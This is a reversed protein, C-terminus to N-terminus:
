AANDETAFCGQSEAKKITDDFWKMLTPVTKEDYDKIIGDIKEKKNHNKRNRSFLALGIAAGAVSIGGTVFVLSAGTATAISAALSVDVVKKWFLIGTTKTAVTVVSAAAGTAAGGVGGVVKSLCHAYSTGDIKCDPLDGADVGIHMAYGSMLIALDKEFLALLNNCCANDLVDIESLGKRLELGRVTLEQKFENRLQAKIRESNM